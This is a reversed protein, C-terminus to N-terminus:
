APEVRPLGLLAVAVVVLDVMEVSELIVLVAVAAAGTILLERLPRFLEMEVKPLTPLDRSALEVVVVLIGPMFEGLVM